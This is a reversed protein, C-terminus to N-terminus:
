KQLRDKPTEDKPLTNARPYTIHTALIYSRVHLQNPHLTSFLYKNTHLIQITPTTYLRKLSDCLRFLKVMLGATVEVFRGVILRVQRTSM